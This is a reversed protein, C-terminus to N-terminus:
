DIDSATSSVYELLGVKGKVGPSHVDSTFSLTIAPEDNFLFGVGRAVDGIILDAKEIRWTGELRQSYDVNTTSGNVTQEQYILIYKHDSMLYLSVGVRKKDNDAIKIPATNSSALYHFKATVNKDDKKYYLQSYFDSADKGHIEYKTDSNSTSKGCHTLIFAIALGVLSNIILPAKM